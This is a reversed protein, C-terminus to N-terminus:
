DGGRQSEESVSIILSAGSSPLVYLSLELNSEMGIKSEEHQLVDAHGDSRLM